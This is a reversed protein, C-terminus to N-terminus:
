EQFLEYSSLICAKSSIEVCMHADSVGRLKWRKDLNGNKTGRIFFITGKPKLCPEPLPQFYALLKEKKQLFLVVKADDKLM